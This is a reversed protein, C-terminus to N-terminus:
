NQRTSVEYKVVPNNIFILKDVANMGRNFIMPKRGLAKTFVQYGKQRYDEAIRDRLKDHASSETM